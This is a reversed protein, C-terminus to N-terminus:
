TWGVNEGSGELEVGDVEAFDPSLHCYATTPVATVMATADPRPAATPMGPNKVEHTYADWWAAESLEVISTRGRERANCPASDHAKEVLM